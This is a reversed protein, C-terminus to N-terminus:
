GICRSIDIAWINRIIPLSDVSVMIQINPLNIINRITKLREIVAKKDACKSDLLTIIKDLNSELRYTQHNNREVFCIAM